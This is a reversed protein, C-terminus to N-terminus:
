YKITNETVAQGTVKKGKFTGDVSSIGEWLGNVDQGPVYAKLVLKLDISPVSLEYVHPHKEGNPVGQNTYSFDTSKTLYIRSDDPMVINAWMPISNKTKADYAAALNMELGNKLQISAWMWQYDPGLLFDGWQHDMWSLSEKPNIQFVENGVSLQGSTNLHTQSYYYSNTQKGMDILGTKSALLMSREPTFKLDFHLLPGKQPQVTMVLLYNKGDQKLSIDKGFQLDLKDASLIIASKDKFLIEKGYVKKNDIDTLQIQVLAGEKIFGLKKGQVYMLTVYYGFHRGNTTTLKGNYYWWESLTGVPYPTKEHHAADDRPLQIPVYPLNAWAPISLTLLFIFSFIIRLM